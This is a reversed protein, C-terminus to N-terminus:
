SLEGKRIQLEQCRKFFAIVNYVRNLSLFVVKSILNFYVIYMQYMCISYLISDSCKDAYITINRVLSIDIFLVIIM